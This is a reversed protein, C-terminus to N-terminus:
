PRSFQYVIMLRVASTYGQKTQSTGAVLDQYLSLYMGAGAHLGLQLQRAKGVEYYLGLTPILEHLMNNKDVDLDNPNYPKYYAVQYDFNAAARWQGAAVVTYNYGLQYGNVLSTFLYSDSLVVKPGAYIGHRGMGAHLLLSANVGSYSLATCLGAGVYVKRSTTNMHMTQAQVAMTGCIFFLGIVGRM